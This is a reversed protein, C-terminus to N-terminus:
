ANHKYCNRLSDRRLTSVRLPDYLFVYVDGDDGGYHREEEEQENKGIRSFGKVTCLLFFPSFNKVIYWIKLKLFCVKVWANNICIM